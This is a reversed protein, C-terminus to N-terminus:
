SLSQLVQPMIDVIMLHGGGAVERFESGAIGDRLAMGMRLPVYTDVDGHWITTPVRVRGLLPSWDSAILM